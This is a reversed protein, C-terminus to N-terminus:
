VWETSMTGSEYGDALRCFEIGSLLCRDFERAPNPHLLGLVRWPECGFGCLLMGSVPCRAHEMEGEGSPRVFTASKLHSVQYPEGVAGGDRVDVNWAILAEGTLLMEINKRQICLCSAQFHQTGVAVLSPHNLAVCQPTKQRCENFITNNLNGYHQAGSSPLHSLATKQTAVEISISTVEVYFPQGDQHCIFDPSKGDETVDVNPQVECGHDALLARVNCECIAAEPDANLLRDWDARHQPDYGALWERHSAVAQDDVCFQM